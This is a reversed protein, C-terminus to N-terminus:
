TDYVSHGPIRWVQLSLNMQIQPLSQILDERNGDQLIHGGPNERKKGREREKQDKGVVHWVPIECDKILKGLCYEQSAPFHEQGWRRSESLLSVTLEGLVM